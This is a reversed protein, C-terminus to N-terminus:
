GDNHTITTSSDGATFRAFWKQWDRLGELRVSGEDHRRTDTASRLPIGEDDQINRDSLKTAKDCHM